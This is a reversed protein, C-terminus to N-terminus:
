RRMWLTSSQRQEKPDRVPRYGVKPLTPRKEKMLKKIESFIILAAECCGFGEKEPKGERVTWEGFQQRARFADRHLIVNDNKFLSMGLAIAGYEDYHSPEKIPLGERKLIAGFPRLGEDKRFMKSNGLIKVKREDSYIGLNTIEAVDKKVVEAIPVEYHIDKYIWLKNNYYEYIACIGDISIDKHIVLAAFHWVNAMIIGQYNYDMIHKNYWDIEFPKVNSETKDNRSFIKKTGDWFCLITADAKDALGRSLRKKYESKAEVRMRNKSGPVWERAALQEILDDDNPLSIEEIIDALNFWMITANDCYNDNGGAGFNIGIVEVNDTDNLALYHRIANGYGTDDVKIKVKHIYNLKKRYERVIKITQLVIEPAKEKAFTRVELLKKGFRVAIATLDDGEAAPDLGIELPIHHTRRDLKEVTRMRAAELDAISIIARPSGTPPLGLVYVRFMDSERPFKLMSHFWQMNKRESDETSFHLIHWGTSKNYGLKNELQTIRYFFGSTKTLNGTLIIKVEPDTMGGFIADFIDDDIDSAEDLLWLVHDAHIGSIKEKQKSTLIEAFSLGRADRHYMKEASWELKDKLLSRELWKYIEAWITVKLHDYKPGTVIVKASERTYLFWLAVLALSTTKTCGRGSHVAVFDRKGVVNLVEKTQPELRYNVLNLKRDEDTIYRYGGEMLPIGYVMDEIFHVPNALYDLWVAVPM